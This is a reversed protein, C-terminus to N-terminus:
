ESLKTWLHRWLLKDRRGPGYRSVLDDHELLFSRTMEAPLRQPAVLFLALFKREISLSPARVESSGFLFRRLVCLSRVREWMTLAGDYAQIQRLLAPTAAEEVHRVLLRLTFLLAPKTCTVRSLALVSQTFGPLASWRQWACAVDSLMALEFHHQLFHAILHTFALPEDFTMVQRGHLVTPRVHQAVREYDVSFFRRSYPEAHLDISPRRADEHFLAVQGVRRLAMQPDLGPTPQYGHGLLRELATHIHPAAIWIDNDASARQRLDGYILRTLLPGKFVVVPLSDLLDLVDLLAEEIRLNTAMRELDVQVYDADM